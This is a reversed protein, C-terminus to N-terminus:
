FKYRAVLFKVKLKITQHYIQLIEINKRYLEAFYKNVKSTASWGVLTPLATVLTALEWLFPEPTAKTTIWFM